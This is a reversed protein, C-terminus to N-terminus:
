SADPYVPLWMARQVAQTVNTPNYAAVKDAVAAAVVAEAVLASLARLNQVKPLIPAGPLSSDVQEAVVAAAGRLMHPTVRSAKSVIVGLGLGPFVLANNIRGFSFTTGSHEVPDVPIGAAVLAKGDSWEIIDSPMAEIRSAPVSIPLILPRETARCM